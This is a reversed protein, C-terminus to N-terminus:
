VMQILQRCADGAREAAYDGHERFHLRSDLLVELYKVYKVSEFRLPGCRVTMSNWKNRNTLM